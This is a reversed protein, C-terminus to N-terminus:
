NIALQQCLEIAAQISGINQARFILKGNLEKIQCNQHHKKFYDLINGFTKTQFYPDNEEPFYATFQNSKLSLRHFGLESGLWRLTVSRILELVQSPIAGFRDTLQIKFTQLEEVSKFSALDNYLKLRESVSNVYHNPILIEMDTDLQCDINTSKSEEDYLDKFEDEKLEALAENLIKQYMEFGIDSIFGSQEAGLLDGAGRIDLDRMSINFGSGLESFQELANLRKRADATLSYSPPAILYCFSKKNSRGVRGRMQHLDSLGFFNANNIIITNANTIDLGSEIITTSVLVDFENDMFSLMIDELKKGEMQGHGVGVKADPCLRQILGAVEKINDIRNHVFYVQGGRSIEYSIADRILEEDFTNVQTEVPFRNPPPTNIISLDRAGMLSFQLTRPIPTASLTLTDINSRMTKLKDKVAVGFKQEEDIILLGLDKFVVDKGVIRHTGILIDIKGEATEKIIKKQEKTTRFRNIYDVRCPLDKLRNKFTKAHQMALITTPVLIAVQKNDSVAKFAARIAVETKGFGVDGCILRDMPIINEMDKKVDNTAKLQDPTDEYIFSAELEHQLFSDPSFEFGKQEKRKAYLKILDYAVSKVRKKTKSKTKHWAGSGIKNITPEVGDKGSYKAIKHLSHISIFLVDKDKYILKIAEQQKNNVEITHLGAFKGIGHDIHTVFDGAQLNNLQQLSIAQKDAFRTKQRFKHFREFLQHDTYCCIKSQHDIFGQSLPLILPTFYVERQHDKIINEFREKQEKGSCLIYNNYGKSHADELDDILLDFQKNFIPQPSSRFEYVQDTKYHFSQGFEVVGFQNLQNIFTDGDLFLRVPDIHKITNNKLSDFHTTSKEFLKNLAEKTSEVDKIWIKSNKPLFELISEKANDSLAPFRPVISIKKQKELSLQTNIDFTRISEVEQDFFEIRFPLESSFSFVDVIGGRISYQGPEIVFDVRQFQYDELCDNLFEIAIQDNQKIDLSYNKLQEQSIVKEFIAEPYSIIIPCKRQNLNNLVETRLLINANDTEELQYPRRYSSPYYLIPSNTLTELDNIFYNAEEKDQLIFFQPRNIEKISNAAVLAHQSGVMHKIQFKADTKEEFCHTM